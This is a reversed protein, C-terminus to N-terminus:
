RHLTLMGMVIVVVSYELVTSSTLMNVDGVQGGAPKMGNLDMVFQLDQLVPLAELMASEEEAAVGKGLALEAVSASTGRAPTAIRGTAAQKLQLIHM